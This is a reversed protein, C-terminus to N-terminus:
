LYLKLVASLSYFVRVLVVKLAAAESKYLLSTRECFLVIWKIPTSALTTVFKKVLKSQLAVFRFVDNLDRSLLYCQRTACIVYVM